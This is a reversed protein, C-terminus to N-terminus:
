LTSAAELPVDTASGRVDVHATVRALSLDITLQAGSSAVVVSQQLFESFGDLFAKVTYTGPKVRPLDFKSQGDSTTEAIPLNSTPDLVTIVVGPLLVAGDQTTTEGHLGADPKSQQDPKAQPASQTQADPKGSPSAPAQAAQGYALGPLSVATASVLAFALLLRSAPTGRRRTDFAYSM